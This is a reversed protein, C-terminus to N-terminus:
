RATQPLLIRLSQVGLGLLHEPPHYLGLQMAIHLFRDPGFGSRSRSCCVHTHQNTVYLVTRLYRFEKDPLYCQGPRHCCRELLRSLDTFGVRRKM